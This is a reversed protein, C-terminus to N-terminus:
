VFADSLAEARHPRLCLLAHLCFQPCEEFRAYILETVNVSSLSTCIYTGFPHMTYEEFVITVQLVDNTANTNVM